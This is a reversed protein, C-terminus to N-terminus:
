TPTSKLFRDTLRKTREYVRWENALNTWLKGSKKKLFVVYQEGITFRSRCKSQTWVVISGEPVDGKRIEHVQLQYRDRRFSLDFLKADITGYVAVDSQDMLTDLDRDELFCSYASAHPSSLFLLFPLLLYLHQPNVKFLGDWCVVNFIRDHEDRRRVCHQTASSPQTATRCRPRGATLADM